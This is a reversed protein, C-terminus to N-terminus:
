RVERLIDIGRRSAIGLGKRHSDAISPVDAASRAVPELGMRRRATNVIKLAVSDAAVPDTSILLIGENSAESEIVLPGGDCVVRLADVVCLKLKSRVEPLAAIDAIYPSCGNVRFRAPHKLLGLSINSLSCRIGCVNDTKLSPVNIIATVQELAAALQDKGSGFDTQEDDYGSWAPQTGYRRALQPPGDILVIRRSTWGARLLSEILISGVVPATGLEPAGVPDFKIGVVDQSGLITRWAAEVSGAGTVQMMAEEFMEAVLTQHVTRGRVAHSSQAWAVRSPELGPPVHLGKSPPDSAVARAVPVALLTAAALAAFRSHYVGGCMDGDTGNPESM